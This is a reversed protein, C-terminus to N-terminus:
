KLWKKKFSTWHNQQDQLLNQLLVLDLYRVALALPPAGAPSSFRLLRLLAIRQEIRDYIENVQASTDIRLNEFSVEMIQDADHFTIRSDLDEFAMTDTSM